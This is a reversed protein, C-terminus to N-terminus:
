LYHELNFLSTFSQISKPIKIKWKSDGQQIFLFQKSTTVILDAPLSCFTEIASDCTNVFMKKLEVSSLLFRSADVETDGNLTTIDSLM